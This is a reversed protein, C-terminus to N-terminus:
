IQQIKANMGSLPAANRQYGEGSSLNIIARPSILGPGM